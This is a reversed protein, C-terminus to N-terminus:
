PKFPQHCPVRVKSCRVVRLKGPVYWQEGSCGKGRTIGAAGAKIEDDLVQRQIKVAPDHTAAFPIGTLVVGRGARDSFDLGESM